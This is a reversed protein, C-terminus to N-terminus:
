SQRRYTCGKSGDAPKFDRAPGSLVLDSGTATRREKQWQGGAYVQYSTKCGDLFTEYSGAPLAGSHPVDFEEGVAFAAVDPEGDDSTTTTTPKPGCSPSTFSATVGDGSATFGTTGEKTCTVKWRALGQSDTTATDDGDLRMSASGSATLEIEASEVGRGVVIGYDNVVQNTLLARVHASDGVNLATIDLGIQMTKGTFQEVAVEVTAKGDLDALYVLSSTRTALTPALWARVRYKGGHIGTVAYRGDADAGLVLSGTRDGVIREILVSAGGVPGDPGVVQGALSAGGGQVPLPPASSKPRSDFPTLQVGRADVLVFGEPVTVTPIQDSEDPPPLSFSTPSPAAPEADDGSCSAGILALAVSAVAIAALM